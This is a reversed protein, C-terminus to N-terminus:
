GAAMGSWCRRSGSFVEMGPGIAAQALDVMAVNGLEKIAEPLRASSRM